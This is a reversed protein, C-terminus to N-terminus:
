GAQSTGIGADEFAADSIRDLRDMWAELGTLLHTNTLVVVSARSAPDYLIRCGSAGGHGFAGISAHRSFTNPASDTQVEFGLGWGVIIQDGLEPRIIHLGPVTVQPTTMLEVSRAHHIRRGGPRFADLFRLLDPLTSVVGFAPHGLSLGYASNYMAGDTGDALVGKVQACRAQVSMPVVAWTDRLGMEDVVLSQILEGFPNGTVASAMHGAFLYGDDSYSFRTGPPYLLPAERADEFLDRPSVKAKLLAALNPSEFRFGATHGLLMRLTIEERGDGRFGPLFAALKSELGIEGEDVLRMLMAATFLKSISALPWVTSSSAPAGPAAEGAYHEFVVENDIAVAIAAGAFEGAEIAGGVVAEVRGSV